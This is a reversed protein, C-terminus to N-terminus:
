LIIWFKHHAAPYLMTAMGNAAPTKALQPIRSEGATPANSIDTLVITTAILACNNRLTLRYTESVYNVNCFLSRFDPTKKSADVGALCVKQRCFWTNRLHSEIHM